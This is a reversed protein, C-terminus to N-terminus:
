KIVRHLSIPCKSGRLGGAEVNCPLKHKICVDTLPRTSGYTPTVGTM